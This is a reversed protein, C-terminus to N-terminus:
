LTGQANKQHSLKDLIYNVSFLTEGVLEVIIDFKRVYCEDNRGINM